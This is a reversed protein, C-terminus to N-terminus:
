VAKSNNFLELATDVNIQQAAIAESCDSLELAKDDITYTQTIKKNGIATYRRDLKHLAGLEHRYAKKAEAILAIKEYVPALVDANDENEWVTLRNKTQRYKTQRTRNKQRPVTIPLIVNSGVFPINHQQLYGNIIQEGIARAQDHTQLKFGM